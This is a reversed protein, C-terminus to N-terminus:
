GPPILSLGQIPPPADARANGRQGKHTLPRVMDGGGADIQADVQVSRPPSVIGFFGGAGRELTALCFMSMHM